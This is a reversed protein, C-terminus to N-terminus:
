VFKMSFFCMKICSSYLKLQFSKQFSISFAKLYIGLLTSLSLSLNSIPLPSLSILPSLYRRVTLLGRYISSLFCVQSSLILILDLFDSEPHENPGMTLDFEEFKIMKCLIHTVGWFRPTRQSGTLGRFVLPPRTVRRWKLFDPLTEKTRPARGLYLVQIFRDWDVIYAIYIDLVAM